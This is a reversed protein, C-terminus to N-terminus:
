DRNATFFYRITRIIITIDLMISRNKIYYVDFALKELAEEMSASPKFNIQAWGTLGPKIIHRIDYYPLENFKEALEIREPRPGILSIDGKFINILQPLEDFHTKRLFKGIPTIRSDNEKTWLPGNKDNYM